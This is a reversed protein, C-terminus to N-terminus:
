TIELGMEAMLGSKIGLIHGVEVSSPLSAM